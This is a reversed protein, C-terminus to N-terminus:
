GILARLAVINRCQITKYNKWAGAQYDKPLWGVIGHAAQEFMSSGEAPTSPYDALKHIFLTM